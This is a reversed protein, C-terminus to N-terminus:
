FYEAFSITTWRQGHKQTTKVESLITSHIVVPVLRGNDKADRAGKICLSITSARIKDKRCTARRYFYRSQENQYKNVVISRTMNHISQKTHREFKGQQLFNILSAITTQTVYVKERTQDSRCIVRKIHTQWEIDETSREVVPQYKGKRNM